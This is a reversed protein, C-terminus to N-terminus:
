SPQMRAWRGQFTVASTQVRGSAGQPRPGLHGGSDRPCLFEDPGGLRGSGVSGVAGVTRVELGLTLAMLERAEPPARRGHGQIDRIKGGATRGPGDRAPKRRDGFRM